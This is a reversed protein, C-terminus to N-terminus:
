NHEIMNADENVQEASVIPYVNQMQNGNLEEDNMFDTAYIMDRFYETPIIPVM